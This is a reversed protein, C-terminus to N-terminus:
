GGFARRRVVDRVVTRRVRGATEPVAYALAAPTAARRNFLDDRVLQAIQEDTADPWEALRQVCLAEVADLWRRDADAAEARFGRWAGWGFAAALVYCLWLDPAAFGVLAFLGALGAWLYRVM